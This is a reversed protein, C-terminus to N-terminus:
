LPHEPLSGPDVVVGQLAERVFYAVGPIFIEPYEKFGQELADVARGEGARIAALAARVREM